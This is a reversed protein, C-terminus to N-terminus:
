LLAIIAAQLVLPVYVLCIIPAFWVSLVEWNWLVEQTQKTLLPLWGIALIIYVPYRAFSSSKSIMLPIGLAISLSLALSFNLVSIVSIITSAFCLNLAKLVTSLPAVEPRREPRLLLALLPIAAVAAFLISSAIQYNAFAYRSTLSVFLMAGLIHTAAMIALVALVPRQRRAWHADQPKESPSPQVFRWGASVWIDLGHFMMSVSILIVSPLYSGIKNFHLSDTLIYFFFSAHLRELLNNMTRLTSEITKGLAHFGHPGQACVAYITFADIRYPQFLGHIGSPRGPAQYGIHRAVNRARVAYTQVLANNRIVKPLWSLAAFEQIHDYMVVPVGGTYRSIREFSNILDQNPLRGNVGEHFIGLHSFSHCAYDIALANWIVGSTHPLEDADLNTQIEGHYSNLWAQMGDLYGDSVVFVLDKAWLSYGKLYKALALVTAVGRLNLEEEVGQDHRRIWSASIVMAENGSTRPSSSIAYANNGTLNTDGVAFRYKQTAAPIGLNQFEAKVFNAREESSANAARLKELEDLYRDASHVEGWNWYTTVQAPQLANEDIYTGRGLDPFPIAVM